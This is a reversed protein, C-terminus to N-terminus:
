YVRWRARSLFFGHGRRNSCRLGDRASRCTIAGRRWTRGYGLIPARRDYATDGACQPTARGAAVLTIGTWDLECARRPEPRLGSLVDCRLVRASRDYLCGINRSPMQFTEFRVAEGSQPGFAALAAAILALAM